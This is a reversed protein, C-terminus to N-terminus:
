IGIFDVVGLFCGGNDGLGTDGRTEIWCGKGFGYEGLCDLLLLLPNVNFSLLKSSGLM